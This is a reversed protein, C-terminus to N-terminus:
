LISGHYPDLPSLSPGSTKDLLSRLNQEVEETITAMMKVNALLSSLLLPNILFLPPTLLLV